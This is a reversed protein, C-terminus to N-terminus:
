AAATWWSVKSLLPLIIEPLQQAYARGKATLSPDGGLLQQLMYDSEGHRSLFISHQNTTM